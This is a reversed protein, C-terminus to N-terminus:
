GTKIFNIWFKLIEEAFTKQQKTYVSPFPDIGDTIPAAFIYTLDDGHWAGERHASETVKATSDTRGAAITTFNFCYLFTKASSVAAHYLGVEFAPVTYLADTLLDMLSYRIAEEDLVGDWDRYQHTLVEHIAQRHYTYAADVFAAVTDRMADVTLGQTHVTDNFFAGVEHASFGVMLTVNGFVSDSTMEAISARIDNLLVSRRDITPGFPVTFSSAAWPLPYFM